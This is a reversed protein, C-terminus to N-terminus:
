EQVCRFTTYTYSCHKQSWNRFSRRLLCAPTRPSGGKLVYHKGDFFNKSYEPRFPFPAFGPFPGLATRTWEWGNGVLDHVRFASTGAPHSGVPSPEWRQSDFNGHEASPRSEGWPYVRETGEPTGYAARHFQAETPLQRGLWRAYASAEAHSVYVPWETPLRIEGFMGHYFWLNGEARWFHPHHICHKEKWEWDAATWLSRNAYGGAEMFLLFEGNTVNHADIAFEPVEVRHEALENDWGFQDERTHRLGLTATGPPIELMRGKKRLPSPAAEIWGPIKRSYPLQHILYTLTESHVLRHEIAAELMMALQPHGESPRDLAQEIAQDLKERLRAVYGEIEGQRPWELPRESSLGQAAQDIELAFLRDFTPHFEKLGFARDALLKWDFTDLHGLYFILRPQGAFPRDYLAEARVLGFLHDTLARAELLRTHIDHHIRVFTAAAVMTKEEGRSLRLFSAQLHPYIEPGPSIRLLARDYNGSSKM